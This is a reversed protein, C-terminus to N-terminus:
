PRSDWPQRLRSGEKFRFLAGARLGMAGAHGIKFVDQGGFTALVATAPVPAAPPIAASRKRAVVTSVPTSRRRPPDPPVAGAEYM